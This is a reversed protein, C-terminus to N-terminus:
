YSGGTAGYDIGPNDYEMIQLGVPAPARMALNTLTKDSGMENWGVLPITYWEGVPLSITGATDYNPITVTGDGLRVYCPGDAKLAVHECDIGFVHREVTNRATRNATRAHPWWPGKGQTM